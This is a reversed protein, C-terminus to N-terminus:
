HAYGFGYLNHGIERIFSGDPTFEMIQSAAAGFNPGSTNGRSFVYIHKKSDVAVGAAEGLYMGTPLRLFNANSDFPIAPPMQQALAPLAALMGAGILWAKMHDERHLSGLCPRNRGAAKGPAQRCKRRKPLCRFSGTPGTSPEGYLLTRR